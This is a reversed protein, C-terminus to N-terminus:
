GGRAERRIRALTEPTLKFTALEKRSLSDLFAKQSDLFARQRQPALATIYGELDLNKAAELEAGVLNAGTLNASELNALRLDARFLMARTLDAGTLNARPLHAERFNAGTLAAGKLVADKLKAGYFYARRADAGSLNAAELNADPLSAQTLDADALNAGRLDAFYLLANALSAHRLDADELFVRGREEGDLSTLLEAESLFRIVEGKREANLRRLTALTVTRAVSRVPDNPISALLRKNLMLDSMQKYYDNLTADQRVQVAAARDAAVRREDRADDRGTQFATWLLTIGILIAPVILLQLWDWLTKGRFGLRDPLRM